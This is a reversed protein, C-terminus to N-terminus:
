AQRRAGQHRAHARRHGTSEDVSARGESVAGDVPVKEGPRVRLRDGVAIQDIAVEEDKGDAGVSCRRARPWGWCRRSPAAPRSAPACSWCRASWCWCPSSPPRSSISRRDAGDTGRFAPRSCAPRWRRRGRQLALGRRHRARDPHVHQPQAHVVSQWGRVFFPWGAWLVVPTALVLQLWNPATRCCHMSASSIGAWTSCWSRCPSRWRRDLLRRTM